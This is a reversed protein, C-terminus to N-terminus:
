FASGIVAGLIMFIFMLAYLGLVIIMLIGFFKFMRRQYSLALNFQEQNNSLIAPKILASFKYLFYTPFFYFLAMLLYFVIVAGGAGAPMGMMGNIGAMGSAASLVIGFFIGALILLALIVFGIISLFMTWRATELLQAKGEEDIVLNFINHNDFNSEM